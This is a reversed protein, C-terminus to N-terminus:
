YDVVGLMRGWIEEWDQSHRKAFVSGSPVFRRDM